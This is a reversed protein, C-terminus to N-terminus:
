TSCTVWTYWNPFRLGDSRRVKLDFEGHEIGFVQRFPSLLKGLKQEEPTLLMNIDPGFAREDFLPAFLFEKLPLNLGSDSLAGAPRVEQFSQLLGGILSLLGM